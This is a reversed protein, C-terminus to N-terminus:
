GKTIKFGDGFLRENILFNIEQFSLAQTYATNNRFREFDLGELLSPTLPNQLKLFMLTTNPKREFKTLVQGCGYGFVRLAVDAESPYTKTVLGSEPVVVRERKQDKREWIQFCTRLENSKALPLNKHDVYILDVDRDSVLHFNSDLRNQVSWKRWSRPVLFAIHSSFNAARNFFPISLANNRGFPPNSITVLNTESSHFELFNGRRVRPHKPHTDLSQIDTIGLSQLADVFAGTGGAPELFKASQLQPNQKLLQTALELALPRPTYYQELGTIRRNGLKEM